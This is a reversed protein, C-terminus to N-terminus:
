RSCRAWAKCPIIWQKPFSRLTGGCISNMQKGYTKSAFEQRMEPVSRRTRSGHPSEELDSGIQCWYHLCPVHTKCVVQLDKKVLHIQAASNTCCHVAAKSPSNKGAVFDQFNPGVLLNDRPYELADSELSTEMVTLSTQGEVVEQYDKSWVSIWILTLWHSVHLHLLLQM